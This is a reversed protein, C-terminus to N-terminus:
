FYVKLEVEQVVNLTYPRGDSGSYGDIGLNLKDPHDDDLFVDWEEIGRREVAAGPIFGLKSRRKVKRSDCWGLDCRCRYFDM